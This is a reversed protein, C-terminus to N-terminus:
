PLAGAQRSVKGRTKKGFPDEAMQWGQISRLTRLQGWPSRRCSVLFSALAALVRWTSPAIESKIADAGCPPRGRVSAKRDNAGGLRAAVISQPEHVAVAGLWGGAPVVVLRPEVSPGEVSPGEVSPGEVSPGEVSPGEVSPGKLVLRKLMPGEVGAGRSAARGTAQPGARWPSRARRVNSSQWLGSCHQNVCRSRLPVTDTAIVGGLSPSSAWHM